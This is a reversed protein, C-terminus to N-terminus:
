KSRKMKGASVGTPAGKTMDYRNYTGPPSKDVLIIAFIAFVM